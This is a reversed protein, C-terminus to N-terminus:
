QLQQLWWVVSGAVKGLVAEFHEAGVVGASVEENVLDTRVRGGPM